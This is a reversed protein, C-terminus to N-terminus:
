SSVIIMKHFEYRQPADYYFIYVHQRNVATNIDIYKYLM